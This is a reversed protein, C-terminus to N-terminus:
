PAAASRTPSATASAPPPSGSASSTTASGLVALNDVRLTGSTGYQGAPSAPAYAAGTPGFMTVVRLCTAAARAAEAAIGRLDVSFSDFVGAASAALVASPHGVDRWAASPASGNPQWQVVRLKSGTTSAQLDVELSALAVGLTPVCVRVGASANQTGQPPFSSLTVAAGGGAGSTFVSAFLTVNGTLSFTSAGALAGGSPELSQEFAWAALTV